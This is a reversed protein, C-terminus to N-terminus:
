TYGIVPHPQYAEELQRIEDPTLKVSVAAVADDLHHPKTAGIIPATVVPKSLMWALAVQAMPLGRAEAVDSVRQAIQLDQDSYFRKGIADTQARLTENREQSPKRALRGKALPSWPIVAIKQDQCLPLMEREEERYILNYHPQMSVFRTWGHLDSTYLAKAFQWAYMSSAGIYRAKGARVVDNLAELTEEIPTDYDWRHIQYLDVYDTGLRKLSADISSLIHKRSLGRDNPGPGMEFFVKTALVVEDRSAYERLARGVIEESRGDSYVNATDFFTIGLELARQIFPRSTEEDLAWPWRETPGGYSMCGLCIRSVKM